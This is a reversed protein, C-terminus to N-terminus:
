VDLPSILQAGSGEKGLGDIEPVENLETRGQLPKPDPGRVCVEWAQGDLVGSGTAGSARLSDHLDDNGGIQQCIELKKGAPHTSRTGLIRALGGKRPVRM